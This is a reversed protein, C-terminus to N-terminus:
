FGLTSVGGERAKATQCGLWLVQKRQPTAMGLERSLGEPLQTAWTQNPAGRSGTADERLAPLLKPLM